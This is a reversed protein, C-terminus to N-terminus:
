GCSSLLLWVGGVYFQLLWFYRLVNDLTGQLVRNGWKLVVQTSKHSEFFFFFNWLSYVIHHRLWLESVILSLWDRPTPSPFAIICWRYFVFVLCTHVLSISHTLLAFIHRRANYPKQETALIELIKLQKIEAWVSFWFAPSDLLHFYLWDKPDSDLIQNRISKRVFQSKVFTSKIRLKRAQLTFM